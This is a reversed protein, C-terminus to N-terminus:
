RGSAKFRAGVIEWEAHLLGIREGSAAELRCCRIFGRSRTLYRTAHMACSSLAKPKRLQYHPSSHAAAYFDIGSM